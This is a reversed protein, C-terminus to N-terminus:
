EPLKEEWYKKVDDPNYANYGADYMDEIVIRELESHLPSNMFNM